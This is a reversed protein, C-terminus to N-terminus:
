WEPFLRMERTLLAEDYLPFVGPQSALQMRVLADIADGYLDNATSDNLAGLYTMDGLDSLLLFGRELHWGILPKSGVTLLPKPRHNTLPRM